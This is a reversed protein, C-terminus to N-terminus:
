ENLIDDTNTETYSNPDFVTEELTDYMFFQKLARLIREVKFDIAIIYPINGLMGDRESLGERLATDCGFARAITDRYRWTKVIKMQMVGGRGFPVLLYEYGLEELARDIRRSGKPSKGEATNQLTYTWLEELTGGCLILRIGKIDEVSQLQSLFIEKECGPIIM